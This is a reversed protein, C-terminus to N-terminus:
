VMVTRKVGRTRSTTWGELGAQALSTLKGSRQERAPEPGSADLVRPQTRFIASEARNERESAGFERIGLPLRAGAWRGGVFGAGDRLGLVRKSKCALRARCDGFIVFRREEVM